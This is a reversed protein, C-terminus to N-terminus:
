TKRVCEKAHRISHCCFPTYVNQPGKQIDKKKLKKTIEERMECHEQRKEYKMKQDKKHFIESTRGLLKEDRELVTQM